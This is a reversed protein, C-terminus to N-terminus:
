FMEDRVETPLSKMIAFLHDTQYDADDLANHYTGERKPAKVKPFMNKLTRYCMDRNYKWPADMETCDYANKLIVNDFAAGNGWIRVDKSANEILFDSLNSLVDILDGAKNNNIFMARAQDSQRLWWVVTSADIQLGQRVSDEVNIVEYFSPGKELTKVNFLRVGISAIAANPKNGLTELDCMGDTNKISESM